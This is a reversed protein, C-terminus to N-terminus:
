FLVRSPAFAYVIIQMQKWRWKGGGPVTRCDISVRQHDKTQCDQLNSKFYVIKGGLFLFYFLVRSPAFAYVINQSNIHYMRGFISFIHMDTESNIHYLRGFISFIHMNIESNIRYLRGFISFIHM